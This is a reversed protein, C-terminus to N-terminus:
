NLDYTELVERNIEEIERIILAKYKSTYQNVARVRPVLSIFFSSLVMVLILATLAANGRDSGRIFTRM